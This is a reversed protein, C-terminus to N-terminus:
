RRSAPSRYVVRLTYLGLALAVLLVTGFLLGLPPPNGRYHRAHQILAHPMAASADDATGAPSTPGAGLSTPPSEAPRTSDVRSGCGNLVVASLMLALALRRM